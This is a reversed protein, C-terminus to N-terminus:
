LAAKVHTPWILPPIAMAVTRAQAAKAAMQPELAAVAAVSIGAEQALAQKGLGLGTAAKMLVDEFDDEIRLRM